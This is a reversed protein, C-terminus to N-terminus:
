FEEVGFALFPTSHHVGHAQTSATGKSYNISQVAHLGEAAGVGVEVEKRSSWDSEM